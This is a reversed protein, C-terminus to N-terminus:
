RGGKKTEANARGPEPQKFTVTVTRLASRGGDVRYSVRANVKLTKKKRLSREASSTLAVKVTYTGAKPVKAGTRRISSGNVTIRGTGPVRVRLAATSGTVTRLKAVHVSARIPAPVNGDGGSADSGAASPPPATTPGQCADGACPPPSEPALFGGGQRVAYLAVSTATHERTIRSITALFHTKGDASMAVSIIGRPDDGDSIMTVGDTAADWVFADDKGNLDGPTMAESTLFDIASGDDAIQPLPTSENLGWNAFAGTPSRRDAFGSGATRGPGNVAPDDPWARRLDGAGADYRYIDSLSDQDDATLRAASAFALFRGDPTLANESILPFAWLNSDGADLTAVFRTRAPEDVPGQIRVYLNPAGEQPEGTDAEAHDLVGKAVFYVYSADESVAVVGQVQPPVPGSSVLRLRDAPERRFDYEYLDTGAHLDADLLRQTTTMFIRSADEAGGVFTVAAAGGCEAPGLTCRSASVDVADPNAAFPEAVYVRKRTASNCPGSGLTTFVIRSLGDRDVAGRTAGGTPGGLSLGCTPIFTAGGSQAVQRVDFTGDPNRKIVALTALHAAHTDTTGDTLAPRSDGSAAVVLVGSLDESTAWIEANRGLAPTVEQWPGHKYGAVYQRGGGVSAAAESTANWLSLPRDQQWWDEQWDVDVGYFPYEGAPPGGLAETTWGGAGRQARYMTAIANLNELDAFGGASGILMDEGSPSLAKFYPEQGATSPPSVLEYAFCNPLRQAIVGQQARIAANPCDDAPAPASTFTQDAGFSTGGGNAAVLRYHYTQDATLFGVPASVAVPDTGPGISAPTCAVKKGYETTLGYEFHCDAIPFEDSEPNVTGALMASPFEVDSAAGTTVTLPDPAPAFTANATASGAFYMSTECPNALGSCTGGADGSWALFASGAVPTAIVKLTSTYSGYDYSCTTHTSGPVNSCDIGPPSSTVTGEGVGTFTVNLVGASAASAGFVASALAAGVVLMAFTLSRRPRNGVRGLNAHAFSARAQSRM